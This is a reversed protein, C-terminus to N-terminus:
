AFAFAVFAGPGSSRAVDVPARAAEDGGQSGDETSNSAFTKQASCIKAARRTMLPGKALRAAARAPSLRRRCSLLARQFFKLRSPPSLLLGVLSVSSVAPKLKFEAIQKGCPHVLDITRQCLTAPRVILSAIVLHGTTDQCSKALTNWPACGCDDILRRFLRSSRVM